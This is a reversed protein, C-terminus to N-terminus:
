PTPLGTNLRYVVGDGYAGGLQATTGWLTGNKAQALAAPYAGLASRAGFPSLTGVLSGDSPSVTVISGYGSSGNYNAIWFNGDGELFMGDSSGTGSTDYKRFCHSIVGM